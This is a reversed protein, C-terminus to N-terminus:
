IHLLMNLTFTNKGCNTNFDAVCVQDVFQVFFINKLRMESNAPYGIKDTESKLFLIKEQM